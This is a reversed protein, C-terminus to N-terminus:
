KYRLLFNCYPDVKVLRDGPIVINTDIGDIIAPGPVVNGPLLKEMSYIKSKRFAGDFYVDRQGRLAKSPDEGVEKEAVFKPKVTPAVPALAITIIQIGGRPAMGQRGYEDYYREEFAKAIRKFDEVSEIRNIPVKARLEWLQGGYRALIEYDFRYAGESIGEAKMDARGLEELEAFMRNFRDIGEHRLDNLSKVKDFEFELTEANFPIGGAIVFPSAEYRHMIDSTSAGFACFVAAFLPIVVKKFKLGSTFGACHTAGGGGYVVLGCEAPALGKLVLSSYLTTGMNADLIKCMGEAAEYVDIDLPEAIQEKIAKFAKERDLKMRGGLFYDPDIRNMVVDADTSTPVTGGRGYCVPGPDSGASEPGVILLKVANEVRSMTGGGAGITTIERMPNCIEFRGVIPERLFEIRGKPSVCVDFSTGGVDAGVANDWGYLNKMFETGAFGGVPGSHLTTVPRVTESRALGGAAQLVLLPYTYGHEKLKTGIKALLQKLAKGIYLEIISTMFRPYERITPAVTSSLSVPLGPSMEEIIEAIRREHAPNMFSWILGVTIGEVGDDLLEKIAQRVSDERLPILVKGRSDIREVVGKIRKRPILPDAIFARPIHMAEKRSLGAPRLRGVMTRDEHGRTTIFGLHRAGSGTIVINTGQTTGYGLVRTNTLVESIPKGLQSCASEIAGFFGQSLDGPTTPSKGRVFTGDPKLLFCDSFTGGTDIFIMYGESGKPTTQKVMAAIRGEKKVEQHRHNKIKGNLRSSRIV